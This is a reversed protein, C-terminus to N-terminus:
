MFRHVHDWDDETFCAQAFARHWEYEVRDDDFVEGPYPYVMKYYLKAQLHKHLCGRHPKDTIPAVEHAQQIRETRLLLEGRPNPKEFVTLDFGEGDAHPTACGVQRFVINGALNRCTSLLLYGTRATSTTTM